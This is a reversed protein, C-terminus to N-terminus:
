GMNASKNDGRPLSCPGEILCNKLRHNTGLKLLMPRSTRSFIKEIYIHNEKNHGM